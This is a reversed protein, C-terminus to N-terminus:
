VAKPVFSSTVRFLKMTILRKISLIGARALAHKRILSFLSVRRIKRIKLM